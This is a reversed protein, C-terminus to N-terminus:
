ATVEGFLHPFERAAAAYAKAKAADRDSARIMGTVVSGITLDPRLFSWEWLPAGAGWYAGFKDYGDRTLRIRTLVIRPQRYTM